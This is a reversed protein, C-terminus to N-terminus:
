HPLVSAKIHYRCKPQQVREKTTRETMQKISVHVQALTKDQRQLTATSFVGSSVSCSLSDLLWYSIGSAAATETNMSWTDSRMLHTFRDAYIM